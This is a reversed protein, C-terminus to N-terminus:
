GHPMVSRMTSGKLSFRGDVLWAGQDGVVFRV